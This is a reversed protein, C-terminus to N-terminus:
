RRGAAVAALTRVLRVPPSVKLTFRRRTDPQYIGIRPWALPRGRTLTRSLAAATTYGAARAAAVVREDMDGYPYAVALCDRGLARECDARSRGLERALTEDDLRTLHPHTGTHSGVEWGLDVLGALRSWDLGRLEHEHETEQWHDIGPWSLPAGSEAFATVAFVTGPLDLATLIPEALEVVSAYADDFTVVVVKGRPRRLIANSFTEGRYGRRRLLELQDHLQAPTVSLDAPWRESVAHYCLVLLDNLM